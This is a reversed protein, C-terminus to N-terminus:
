ESIHGWRNHSGSLSTSFHVKGHRQPLVRLLLDKTGAHLTAKLLLHQSLAVKCSLFFFFGSTSKSCSSSSIKLPGLSCLPDEEPHCQTTHNCVKSFYLHLLTFFTNNFPHKTHAYQSHTRSSLPYSGSYVHKLTVPVYREHYWGLSLLLVPLTWWDGCCSSFSTHRYTGTM